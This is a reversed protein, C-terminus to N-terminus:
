FISIEAEQHKNQKKYRDSKFFCKIKQTKLYKIKKTKNKKNRMYYFFGLKRHTYTKGTKPKSYFYFILNETVKDNIHKEKRQQM